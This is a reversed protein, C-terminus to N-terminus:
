WLKPLLTPRLCTWRAPADIRPPLRRGASSNAVTLKKPGGLTARMKVGGSPRRPRGCRAPGEKKIRLFRERGRKSNREGGLNKQLFQAVGQAITVKVLTRRHAECKAWEETAVICRGAVSSLVPLRAASSVPSYEVAASGYHDVRRYFEPDGSVCQEFVRSHLWRALRDRLVNSPDILRCAPQCM